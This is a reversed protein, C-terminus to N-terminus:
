PVFMWFWNRRYPYKMSLIRFPALGPSIGMSSGVVWSSITLARVAFNSPKDIGAEMKILALSTISYGFERSNHMLGSIARERCALQMSRHGSEPTVRFAYAREPNMETQGSASKHEIPTIDAERPTWASAQRRAQTQLHSAIKHGLECREDTFEAINRAFHSWAGRRRLSRHPIFACPPM